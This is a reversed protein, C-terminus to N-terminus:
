RQKGMESIITYVRALDKRNKRIETNKSLQGLSNQIRMNFAEKLLNKELEMLENRNMSRLESAKM